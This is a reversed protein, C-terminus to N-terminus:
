LSGKDLNKLQKMLGADGYRSSSLSKAYEPVPMGAIWAACISGTACAAMSRISDDTFATMTPHPWWNRYNEGSQASTLSMPDRPDILAVRSIGQEKVLYYAVAIGVNGAGVVAVDVEEMQQTGM